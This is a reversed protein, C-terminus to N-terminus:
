INRWLYLRCVKLKSEHLNYQEQKKWVDKEVKKAKTMNCESM